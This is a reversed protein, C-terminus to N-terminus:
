GKLMLIINLTICAYIGALVDDLMIGWGGCIKEIKKIPYPKIIDYFRFLIFGLVAYLVNFPLLYVTILYGIVEDIVIVGPDKKNLAKEVFNAAYVGINFLILIFFLKIIIGLDGIIAYIGIAFFSAFTGPCVPLYGIGFFSAIIIIPIEWKDKKREKDMDKFNKFEYSIWNM